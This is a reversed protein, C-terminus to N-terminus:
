YVSSAVESNLVESSQFVTMSKHSLAVLLMARTLELFRLILALFNRWLFTFTIRKARVKALVQSCFQHRALHFLTLQGRRPWSHKHIINLTSRPPLSYIWPPTHQFPNPMLRLRSYRRLRSNM